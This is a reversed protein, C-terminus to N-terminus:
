EVEPNAQGSAFSNFIQELTPQGVSYESLLGEAKMGELLRFVTGLGLGASGGGSVRYCLAAASPREVLDCGDPFADRLAGNLGKFVEESAPPPLKVELELGDGFTNKLHTSSGLCSLGGNVMVGIRGCLAEAEEMSHTTLILSTSGGGTSSMASLVRWM